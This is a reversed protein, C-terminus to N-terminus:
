ESLFRVAGAPLELRVADGRAPLARGDNAVLAQVVIAESVRVRLQSTAGQYIMEELTGNPDQGDRVLVREPRIVASVAGAPAPPLRLGTTAVSSLPLVNAV